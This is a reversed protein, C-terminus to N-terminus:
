TMRFIPYCSLTRFIIRSYELMCIIERYVPFWELAMEIVLVNPCILWVFFNILWVFFNLWVFFKYRLWVFFKEGLLWVFFKYRLWVFFKVGLLWVFFKYRLWVFFKVGLLWVFFIVGILRVELDYSFNSVIRLVGLRIGFGTLMNFWMTDKLMCHAGDQLLVLLSVVNVALSAHSLRGIYIADKLDCAPSEM